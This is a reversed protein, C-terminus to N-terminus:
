IVDPKTIQRQVVLEVSSTDGLLGVRRADPCIVAGLSGAGSRSHATSSQARSKVTGCHQNEKMDSLHGCVLGSPQEVNNRSPRVQKRQPM